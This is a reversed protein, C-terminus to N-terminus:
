TGLTITQGDVVAIAQRPVYLKQWALLGGVILVAIVLVSSLALLAVREKLAEREAKSLGAGWGFWGQSQDLSDDPRFAPRRVVRSPPVLRAPRQRDRSARTPPRETTSQTM